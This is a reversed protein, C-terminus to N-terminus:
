LDKASIKGKNVAALTRKCLMWYDKPRTLPSCNPFDQEFAIFTLLPLCLAFIAFFVFPFLPFYYIPVAKDHLLHLLQAFATFVAAVVFCACIVSPRKLSNPSFCSRNELLGPMNLSCGPCGCQILPHPGNAQTSNM